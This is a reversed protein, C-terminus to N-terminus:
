PNTNYYHSYHMFRVSSGTHPRFRNPEALESGGVMQQNIRDLAAWQRNLSEREEILPRVLTQYNSLGDATVGLNLYPSVPSSAATAYRPQQASNSFPSTVQGNADATALLWCAGWLITSAVLSKISKPM